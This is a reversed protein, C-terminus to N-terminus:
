AQTPAAKPRRTLFLRIGAAMVFTIALARTFFMFWIFLSQHSLKMAPLILLGLCIMQYLSKGQLYRDLGRVLFGCLGMGFFVGFWGFRSYWDGLVMSPSSGNSTPNYIELTGGKFGILAALQAGDQPNIQASAPRLQYPLLFPIWNEMNEFRRFPQQSPFFDVAMAPVVYDALRRGITQLQEDSGRQGSVGPTADRFSAAMLELRDTIGSVAAGEYHVRGRYIDTGILLYWIVTGGVVSVTLARAWGIRAFMLLAIALTPVVGRLALDRSGSPLLCALPLIFGIGACIADSQTRTHFWQRLQLLLAAYPVYELYGSWAYTDANVTNFESDGAALMHFYTDTAFLAAAYVVVTSSLLALRGRPLIALPVAQRPKAFDRSRSLLVWIAAGSAFGSMGCFCLLMAQPTRVWIPEEFVGPSSSALNILVALPYYVAHSFAILVLLSGPTRHSVLLPLGCGVFALVAWWAFGPTNGGGFCAFVAAALPLLWYYRLLSHRRKAKPPVVPRRTPAKEQIRHLERIIPM